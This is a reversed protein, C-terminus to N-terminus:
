KEVQCKPCFSTGRGGVKIKEIITQCRDCEAGGHGYIRLQHQFTGSADGSVTFSKVTTGGAKISKAIIDNANNILIQIEEDNLHNVKTLPHVYSTFLVEDVYINGLGTIITQDLLFQKITTNRRNAKAKFYEVNLNEDGPELGLKVISKLEGEHHYDVLEMTGFKRTDNYLLMSNDDFYFIIHDHKTPEVNIDFYNYKGEMRLHSVLTNDQFDFFLYKGYRRIATLEQGVLQKIFTESDSTKIMKECRVDIERIKKNIVLGSLVRKVTEVEPLEPM